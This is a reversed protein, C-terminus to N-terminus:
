GEGAQRQDLGREVRQQHLAALDIDQSGQLGVYFMKQPLNVLAAM